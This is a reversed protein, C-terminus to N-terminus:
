GVWGREQDLKEICWKPSSRNISSKKGKTKRPVTRRKEQFPEKTARHGQTPRRLMKVIARGHRGQTTLLVHSIEHLTRAGSLRLLNSLAIAARNARLRKGAANEAFRPYIIAVPISTKSQSRRAGLASNFFACVVTCCVTEWFETFCILATGVHKTKPSNGCRAELLM